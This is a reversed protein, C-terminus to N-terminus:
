SCPALKRMRLSSPTESRAWYSQVGSAARSAEVDADDICEEVKIIEVAGTGRVMEQAPVAMGVDLDAVPEFYEAQQGPGTLILDGPCRELGTDAGVVLPQNGCPRIVAGVCEDGMAPEASVIAPREALVLVEFPHIFEPM